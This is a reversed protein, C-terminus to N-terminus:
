LDEKTFYILRFSGKDGLNDRTVNEDMNNSYKVVMLNADEFIHTNRTVIWVNPLLKRNKVIVQGTSSTISLYWSQSRTNFRQEFEFTGGNLSVKYKSHASSPTSILKM